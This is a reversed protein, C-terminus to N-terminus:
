YNVPAAVSTIPAGAQAQNVPVLVYAASEGTTAGTPMVMRVVHPQATGSIAPEPDCCCGADGGDGCCGADGGDGCCGGGSTCAKGRYAAISSVVIAWISFVFHAVASILVFSNLAIFGTYASFSSYYAYEIASASAGLQWLTLPLQIANVVLFSVLSSNEGFRWSRFGLYVNLLYVPGCWLPVAAKQSFYVPSGDHTEWYAALILIIITLLVSIATSVLQAVWNAMLCSSKSYINRLDDVPTSRYRLAKSTIVVAWFVAFLQAFAALMMVSLMAMMVPHTWDIHCHYPDPYPYPDQIPRYSSYLPILVLWFHTIAFIVNLAAFVLATVTWPFNRKFGALLLFVGGLIFFVGCWIGSFSFLVDWSWRWFCWSNVYTNMFVVVAIHSLFSVGGAVIQVIGNKKASGSELAALHGGGCMIPNKEKILGKTLKKIPKETISQITISRKFL